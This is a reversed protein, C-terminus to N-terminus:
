AEALAHHQWISVTPSKGIVTKVADPVVAEAAHLLDPSDFLFLYPGCPAAADLMKTLDIAWDKPASAGLQGRGFELRGLFDVYNAKLSAFLRFAYSRSGALAEFSPVARIDIVWRPSTDRLLSVFEDRGMGETDALLVATPEPYAFALQQPKRSRPGLKPATHDIVLTLYPPLARKTM